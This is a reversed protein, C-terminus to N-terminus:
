AGVLELLIAVAAEAEEPSFGCCLGTLGVAEAGAVNGPHDDVFVTRSARVDLRECALRYISANPKRMRVESSDVVDDFLEDLPIIQRWYTGFEVLNNTVVGTKMGADRIRTVADVMFTRPERASGGLEALMVLPDLEGLGSEVALESIEARAADFTIEGRELRHWPHDTDADYTGFVVATLEEPPHGLREAARDLAAFPSDIFVGGFDFLVADYRRTM